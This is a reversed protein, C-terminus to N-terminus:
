VAIIDSLQLLSFFVLRAFEQKGSISLAYECMMCTGWSKKECDKCKTM